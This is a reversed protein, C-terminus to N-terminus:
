YGVDAYKYKIGQLVVGATIYRVVAQQLSYRVGTSTDTDILGYM